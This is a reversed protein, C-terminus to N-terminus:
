LSLVAPELGLYTVSPCLQAVVEGLHLSLSSVIIFSWWGLVPISPHTPHAQSVDVLGLCTM